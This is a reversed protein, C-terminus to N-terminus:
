QRSSHADLAGAREFELTIKKILSGEGPDFGWSQDQSSFILSPDWGLKIRLRYYDSEPGYSVRRYQSPQIGIDALEEPLRGTRRQYSEIEQIIPAVSRAFELLQPDNDKVPYNSRMGGPTNWSLFAVLGVLVVAALFTASIFLKTKTKM